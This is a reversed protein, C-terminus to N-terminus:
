RGKHQSLTDWSVVKDAFRIAFHLDNVGVTVPIKESIQKMLKWCQELVNYNEEEDDYSFLAHITTVIIQRVKLRQAWYPVQKLADRFRYIAEANMVYVDHLQEERIKPFLSHPNAANGCDIILCPTLEFAKLL